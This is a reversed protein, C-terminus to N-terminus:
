ERMENDIYKACDVEKDVVAYLVLPHVVELEQSKGVEELSGANKMCSDLRNYYLAVDGLLGSRVDHVDSAQENAHGGDHVSKRASPDVDTLLFDPTGPNIIIRFTLLM